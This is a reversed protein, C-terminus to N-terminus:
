RQAALRIAVRLGPENDLLEIEGGHLRAVARVLSLGLGSGETTRAEELRGYRRLADARRESPIGPGDDAVWLEVGDDHRASGMTIAGGECAAYKLANDLLNAVAQGILQRHGFYIISQPNEVSLAVGRDEAVPQYIECIDQLLDATDFDAFYQRGVGAETRSIELTASILRLMRDIDASIAEMAQQQDELPSTAAREVNARMRTLPSRLDHALADTVMKLQSVLGEIRDLLLNIARSVRSFADGEDVNLRESLDGAAIREAVRGVKQADRETIRIVAFGFFVGLPLALLLAGLLAEILADRVRERAELNTAVLLRYGSPFLIVRIAFLEPRDSQEPYLRLETRRVQRQLTPPWSAINGALKRGSDDVLLIAGGSIVGSELEQRVAGALGQIGGARYAYTMALERDNLRAAIRTELLQDTQHYVFLLVPLTILLTCVLSIVVARWPTSFPAELWGPRSM